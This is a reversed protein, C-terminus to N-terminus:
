RVHPPVRQGGPQALSTLLFCGSLQLHDPPKELEEPLHVRGHGRIFDNNTNLLYKDPLVEGEPLM